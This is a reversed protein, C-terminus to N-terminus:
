FPKLNFKSFLKGTIKDDLKGLLRKLKKKLEKKQVKSRIEVERNGGRGGERKSDYEISDGWISECHWDWARTKSKNKQQSVIEDEHWVCGHSM